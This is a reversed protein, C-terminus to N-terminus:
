STRDLAKIVLTDNAWRSSITHCKLRGLPVVELIDEMKDSWLGVGFAAHSTFPNWVFDSPLPAYREVIFLVDQPSQETTVIFHIIGPRQTNNSIFAINCDRPSSVYTTFTVKGSTYKAYSMCSPFAQNPFHETYYLALAGVARHSLPEGRADSTIPHSIDPQFLAGALPDRSRDEAATELFTGFKQVAPIDQHLHILVKFHSSAAFTELM